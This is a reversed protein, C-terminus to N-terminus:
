NTRISKTHNNYSKKIRSKIRIFNARFLRNKYYNKLKDELIDIIEVIESM